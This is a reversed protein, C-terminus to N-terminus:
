LNSMLNRLFHSYPFRIRKPIGIIKALAAKFQQM